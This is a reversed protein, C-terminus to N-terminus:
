NEVIFQELATKLRTAEIELSAMRSNVFRLDGSKAAKELELALTQVAEGGVNAAAGKLGHITRAVEQANDAQLSQQIQAMMDALDDLFFQAIARALEEDHACRSFLDQKNLASSEPSTEEETVPNVEEAKEDSLLWKELIEALTQPHIPKPIYDSMGAALCAERDGKMANATMAIIPIDRNRDGAKGQRIQQSAEYGDMEPMLCDMLVLTYPHNTPAHELIYLAERGHFALDVELGLKKLLGQVVKQNVQNDEVLLLRTPTPWHPTQATKLRTASQLSQVYPATILPSANRLASGGETVIALANYLNSPTVPKTFYASFGLDAFVQADGRSGISTMMVLPMAQFQQEAKLRQGLEAGDMEPMQMDLLAIDFPPQNPNRQVATECLSLAAPGNAATVVKVGWHGLQGSLVERNTENDDVVLVRLHNLEVSPLTQPLTQSPQFRLTFEFCSGQGYESEVRINGGMLECLKQTIALGLGTGGYQRTTKAHVQTFSDFLSALKDEPIGIGTDSISGTFLFDEGDEELTCQIVIEGDETFKLANGVLNTLIQRLRGPDGKVGVQPMGRVDLILEINKEQAKFAMAQVFEGLQQRLDFDLYELELKGADVKSFDLIDNILTLLSEASSQAIHAQSRQEETLETSQLLNLMGLVGNMPTRIEHSMNALFISKARAAAEAANKATILEQETQKQATIDRCVCIILGDDTLTLSLGEIFTTGDKRTAIAEGQWSQDRQLIPFVEQAFRQLEAESYLMQWSQGLFDEATEYGFLACHAQNVYIYREEQLIAIGDIAAEITTLLQKRTTEALKRDTIDQLIGVMGMVQEQTDRLPAKHTEIWRQEGNPLIFIEERDLQAEGTEMVEQDGAQCNKVEAETLPLDWDTKGIIENTSNLNVWEAFERNCGFFASERNKWFVPLPITDLITQIFQQSDKLANETEIRDSIDEVIGEMALLNGVEDKVPHQSVQITRLSGDPHWFRMEFQQLDVPNEIAEQLASQGTTISDPLWDISEAWSTGLIDKKQLGFVSEIGESVYSLIGSTGTHSFVVFKDGIDNVLRQFQTKSERLDEEVAKRQTIDIHCGIMRLPNGEDDWEIVKGSCIVWVTSGDKHQYRIENYYPVQGRSEVHRHFNDFVKPLDEPFILNQWTEPTNPLEHDEYGFMKKFSPSLYEQQNAIDWDWYGALTVELIQELLTLEQQTQTAKLRETEAAQRESIDTVTGVYGIIQGEPSRETVAQADVWNVTGDPPQFRFEGQYPRNEQTAQYWGAIVEQRDEPHLVQQWGDGLVEELSRGALKCWYDNVYLCKGQADTRFIGVPVAAVLNAYNQQSTLLETEATQRAQLEAQLKQHTTTQQIAIALQLAIEQLLAIEEPQWQRVQECHHSILLGWLEGERYLPVTLSAQVQYQALLQRHCPTYHSDEVNNVIIVQEQQYLLSTQQQFCTDTIQNGLSSQWPPTVSEAIITGSYDPHFQFIIVRDCNLVQRVQEVTTDLITELNLSSRIHTGLETLLKERQAQLQLAATRKEVEQELEKARNELLAVKEAELRSVKEELVKTLNYLELPNLVQLLNTQTIIGRLEGQKDTVVIRRIFRQEMVQQVTWLSDSPHVTLLPTSMVAEAKCQELNLGLVQCQVLDRETLIGLPKPPSTTENPSVIVVSSINHHAMQQAITLLSDQPTACVVQDTMVESVLRLRLLDIPRCSQRLSEQTVLGLLQQQGNVLPLHRIQYQQFVNLVTSFDRFESEQLTRIPHTMVDGVSLGDLSQQQATLRVVDRETLIGLINRNEMVLVCSAGSSPISPSPNLDARSPKRQASQVGNMQVGNMQAIADIVRTEPSVILPNRIIATQLESLSFSM